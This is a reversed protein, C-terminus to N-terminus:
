QGSIPPPLNPNNRKPPLVVRAACQDQSCPGLETLRKRQMINGVPISFMKPCVDCKVTVQATDELEMPEPCGITQKNICNARADKTALFCRPCTKPM